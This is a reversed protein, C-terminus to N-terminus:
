PPGGIEDDTGCSIIKVNPLAKKLNAVRTRNMGADIYLYELQKLERLQELESDAIRQPYLCLNHLQKLNKLHEIVDTLKVDSLNVLSVCRFFDDGLLKRQWEPGPPEAKPIGRLMWWNGAADLEYDYKVVCGLKLLANVADRQMGAQQIKLALWSSAIAVLFM